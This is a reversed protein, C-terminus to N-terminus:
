LAPLLIEAIKMTIALLFLVSFVIAAKRLKKRNLVVNISRQYPSILESTILLIIAIVAFFITLESLNFPVMMLKSKEM